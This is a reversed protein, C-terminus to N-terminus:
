EDLDFFDGDFTALYINTSGRVTSAELYLYFTDEHHLLSMFGIARAGPIDRNEFVQQDQREWQIGGESIALM